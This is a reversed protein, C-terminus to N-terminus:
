LIASMVHLSHLLTGLDYLPDGFGPEGVDNGDWVVRPDIFRVDSGDISLLINPLHADGHLCAGFPQVLRDVHATLFDMYERYSGCQYGDGFIVPKDLVAELDGRVLVAFTDRFDDRQLLQHFRELYHYRAVAPTKASVTLEYLAILKDVASYFTAKGPDSLVTRRRDAFVIEDLKTPNVAEMLYWAPDETDCIALVTPFLETRGEDVFLQNIRRIYVAEQSIIARDALKTVLEFTVDVRPIAVSDAGNPLLGQLAVKPQLGNGGISLHEMVANRYRVLRRDMALGFCRRVHGVVDQIDTLMEGTGDPGVIFSARVAYRRDDKEVFEFPSGVGRQLLLGTPFPITLCGPPQESSETSLGIVQIGHKEFVASEEIFACVESTCGALEPYM